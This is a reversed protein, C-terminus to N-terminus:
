VGAPLCNAIGNKVKKMEPTGACLFLRGGRIYTEASSPSFGTTGGRNAARKLSFAENPYTTMDGASYRASGDKGVVKAEALREPLFEGSGSRGSRVLQRSESFLM